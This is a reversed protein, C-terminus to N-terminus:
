LELLFLDYLHYTSLFTLNNLLKISAFFQKVNALLKLCLILIEHLYLLSVITPAEEPCIIILITISVVLGRIHWTKTTIPRWHLWAGGIKGM